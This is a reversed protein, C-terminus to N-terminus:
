NNDFHNPIQWVLTMTATLVLSDVVKRNSGIETNEILCQDFINFSKGPTTLFGVTYKHINIYRPVLM